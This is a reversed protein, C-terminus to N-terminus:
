QKLKISKWKGTKYRGYFLAARVIQDIISATNVGVLGWGFVDKFVMAVPLRICITTILFIPANFKTDGAGQLAGNYTCQVALIPLSAGFIRLVPMGAELVDPEPSFLMMLQRGFINCILGCVAMAVFLLWFAHKNYIEARKVDKRGLCQGTLPATAMQMSQGILLVLNLINWCLQHAAYDVEGLSVAMRGFLIMAIRFVVQEAMAPMGITIMNSFIGKDFAFRERLALKLEGSGKLLVAFAIVMSVTQGISTALAAGAVHMEPFIWVGHILLWNFLVNVCNGFLNYFMATRANGVGRLAAAIASSFGIPLVGILRWRLYAVAMEATDANEVGMMAILQESLAFGVATMVIGVVGSILLSQRVIQNIKSRNGEGKARSVLATTGVNLASFVMVLLMTPNMNVGVANIAKTGLGGVMMMDVMSVLQALLLEILCPMMYRLIDSYIQKKSLRDVNGM